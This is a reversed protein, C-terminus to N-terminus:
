FLKTRNGSSMSPTKIGNKLRDFHVDHRSSNVLLNQYFLSQPTAKLLTVTVTPWGWFNQQTWKNNIPRGMHQTSCLYLPILRTWRCHHTKKSKDPKGVGGAAINLLYLSPRRSALTRNNINCYNNNSKLLEACFYVETDRRNWWLEPLALSNLDFFTEFRLLAM